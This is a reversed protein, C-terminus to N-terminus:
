RARTSHQGPLNGNAPAHGFPIVQSKRPDNRATLKQAKNAANGADRTKDRAIKARIAQRHCARQEGNGKERQRCMDQDILTRVSM